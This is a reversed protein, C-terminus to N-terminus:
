NSDPQQTVETPSVPELILSNQGPNITVQSSWVAFGNGTKTIAFLYYSNPKVDKLQLKGSADTTSNYVANKSIAGMAKRSFDGYQSPYVTAMGLATLLSSQGTENDIDADSLISEADKKLLYFRTGRVPQATGSKSFVKAELNVSGKDPPATETAPVTTTTSSSPPATATSPMSTQPVVIQGGSSSPPVVVENPLPTSRVTTDIAGNAQRQTALNVNINRQAADDDGNNRMYALLVFLLVIGLIGLPIFIWKPFDDTERRAEAVVVNRQVVPKIFTFGCNPCSTAATSVERACEPCTILSM